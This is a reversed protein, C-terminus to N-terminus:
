NNLRNVFRTDVINGKIGFGFKVSEYPRRRFSMQSYSTFIYPRINDNIYTAMTLGLDVKNADAVKCGKSLVLDDGVFEKETCDSGTAAYLSMFTGVGLYKYPRYNYHGEVGIGNLYGTAGFPNDFESNKEVGYYSYLGTAQYGLYASVDHKDKFGKNIGAAIYLTGVNGLNPLDKNTSSYFSYETYTIFSLSYINPDAAGEGDLADEPAAVAMGGSIVLTLALMTLALTGFVLFLSKAHVFKM